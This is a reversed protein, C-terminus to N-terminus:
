VEWPLIVDEGTLEKVTNRYAEFADFENNYYGLSKVSRNITIRAHWKQTPKHFGVGPYKHIKPAHRNQLNQRFTVHRLNNRQNNLGDGDKHDIVYGPKKGMIEIHM